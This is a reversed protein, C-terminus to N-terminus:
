LMRTHQAESTSMAVFRLTAMVEDNVSVDITYRGPEPVVLSQIAVGACMSVPEGRAIAEHDATTKFGGRAGGIDTGAADRLILVLSHEDDKLEDADIDVKIAVQVGLPSPYTDRGIRTVGGGLIFLLGERVTAADCLLAVDLRM